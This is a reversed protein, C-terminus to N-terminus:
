EIIVKFIEIEKTDFPENYGKGGTLELNGTVFFSSNSGAGISGKLLDKGFNIDYYSFDYSNSTNGFTPGYNERCSIVEKGTNFMNYQKLLNLSFLFTKRSVDYCSKNNSNWSLPTFGGFIHKSKTEIITLTAGKNDCCRHFDRPKSGNKSMKYILEYKIKNTEMKEKIWKNILNQKKLDNKIISSDFIFENTIHLNKIKEIIDNIYKEEPIEIDFLKDYNDEKKIDINKCENILLDNQIIGNNLVLKIKNLLIENEKIKKDLNIKNYKNEIENLYEDEVKNIENRIKTFINQINIELEERKKNIKELENKLNDNIEKLNNSFNKLYKINEEIVKSEIGKGNKDKLSKINDANNLQILFSSHRSEFFDSHFIECKKCMFNECKTCYIVAEIEEHKKLSCKM